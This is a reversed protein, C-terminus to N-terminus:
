SLIQVLVEDTMRYFELMVPMGGGDGYLRQLTIDEAM